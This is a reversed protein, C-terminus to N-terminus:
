ASAARVVQRARRGQRATGAPQIKDRRGCALDAVTPGCAPDIPVTELPEANAQPEPYSILTGEFNRLVTHNPSSSLVYQPLVPIKGGGHPADVVFTPIALGSLRGRLYEMIEIGRALPTRFHEVGRVLDCQFLYYPRVRNRILGRCLTEIVRPDDNIGRLLVTQNGLPIGADALRACAEAALPTLEQPHNFHTNIWLPHYRRLMAVLNDTIRMPLTVPTRTGIRIIDVSPVSRIASLIKELAKTSFTLPDGGSVIVDRIEPHKQLYIIAQRLQAASIVSERQGTVRKRTCHRCYMACISTTILLARDPYRHVLGPVPMDCEEELPDERLFVPDVLELGQPVSMAFIPDSRDLRQALSAYYPTIALPFRSAAEYVDGPIADWKYIAALEAVSRIRKRMQWRWNNWQVSTPM